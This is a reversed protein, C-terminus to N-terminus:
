AAGKRLYAILGSIQEEVASVIEGIVNTKEEQYIEARDSGTLNVYVIQDDKPERLGLEESRLAIAHLDIKADFRAQLQIQEQRLASLERQLESVESSAEFLQVYGFVVLVLMCTVVVMGLLTFPAVATKARVRPRREPIPQEQPLHRRQPQPQPLERAANSYNRGSYVDYAAAGNYYRREDAM